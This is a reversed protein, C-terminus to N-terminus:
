CGKALPSDLCEKSIHLCRCRQAQAAIRRAGMRQELEREQQLLKDLIAQAARRDAETQAGDAM